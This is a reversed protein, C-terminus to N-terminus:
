SRWDPLKRSRRGRNYVGVIVDATNNQLSGGRLERLQKADASIGAAGAHSLSLKHILSPYDILSGDRALVLGLGLLIESRVADRTRGWANVAVELTKDLLDPRAGNVDFGSYVRELASVAVIHGDKAPAEVRLGRELLIKTIAVAASDGGTARKLFIQVPHPKNGDNLGVFMTAMQDLKLNKYVKAEILQTDDDPWLDRAAAGRHQGDLPIYGGKGDEAVVIVGLLSPDFNDRIREVKNRDLPRNVREDTRLLALKIWKTDAAAPDPLKHRPM